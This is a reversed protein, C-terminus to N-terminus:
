EASSGRDHEVADDHREWDLSREVARRWGRYLADSTAADMSPEFRRDLRWSDVLEQRSKWFGTALGALFAAGRSASETVEPRLVPVGLIDAQFQMLFDNGVAGGDM